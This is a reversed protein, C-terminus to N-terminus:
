ETGESVRSPSAPACPRLGGRGWSLVAQSDRRLPPAQPKPWRSRFHTLELECGLNASDGAFLPPSPNPYPHLSPHLSPHPPTPFSNPLRKQLVAPEARGPVPCCLTRPGTTGLPGEPAPSGTDLFPRCDWSQRTWGGFLPWLLPLCRLGSEGPVGAAMPQSQRCGPGTRSGRLLLRCPRRDGRTGDTHARACASDRM